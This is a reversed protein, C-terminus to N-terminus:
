TGAEMMEVSFVERAVLRVKGPGVNLIRTDLERVIRVKGLAELRLAKAKENSTAAIYSTM